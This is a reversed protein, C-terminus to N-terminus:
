PPLTGTIGLGSLESCFNLHPSILNLLADGSSSEPSTGRTRASHRSLGTWRTILNVYFDSWKCVILFILHRMFLKRNGNAFKPAFYQSKRKQCISVKLATSMSADIHILALPLCRDNNKKNQNFLIKNASSLSWLRSLKITVNFFTRVSQWATAPALWIHPFFIIIAPLAWSPIVRYSSKKRLGLGGVPGRVVM